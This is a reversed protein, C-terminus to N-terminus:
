PGMKKNDDSSYKWLSLTTKLAAANKESGLKKNPWNTLV